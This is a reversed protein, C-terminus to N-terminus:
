NKHYNISFKIDYFLIFKNKLIYPININKEPKQIHLNYNM